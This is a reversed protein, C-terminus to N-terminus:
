NQAPSVYDFLVLGRLEVEVPFLGVGCPHLGDEPGSVTDGEVYM